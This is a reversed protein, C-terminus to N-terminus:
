VFGQKYLKLLFGRRGPLHHRWVFESLSGMGFRSRQSLNGRVNSVRRAQKDHRQILIIKVSAIVVQPFPLTYLGNYFREVAVDRPSQLPKSGKGVVEKPMHGLPPRPTTIRIGSLERDGLFANLSLGYWEM